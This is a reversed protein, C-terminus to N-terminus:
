RFLHKNNYFKELILTKERQVQASHKTYLLEELLLSLWKLCVSPFNNVKTGIDHWTIYM